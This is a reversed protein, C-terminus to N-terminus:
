TTSEAKQLIDSKDSFFMGFHYLRGQRVALWRMEVIMGPALMASCHSFINPGSAPQTRWFPRKQGVDVNVQSAM